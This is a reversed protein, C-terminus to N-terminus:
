DILMISESVKCGSKRAFELLRKKADPGMYQQCLVRAVANDDEVGFARRLDSLRIRYDEVEDWPLTEPVEPLYKDDETYLTDVFSYVDLRGGYFEAQISHNEGLFHANYLVM